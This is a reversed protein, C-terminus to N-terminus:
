CKLTQQCAYPHARSSPPNSAVGVSLKNHLGLYCMPSEPFTVRGQMCSSVGLQM